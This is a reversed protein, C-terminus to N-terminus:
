TSEQLYLLSDPKSAFSYLWRRIPMEGSGGRDTDLKVALHIIIDLTTSIVGLLRKSM